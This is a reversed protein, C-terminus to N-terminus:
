GGRGHSPRCRPGLGPMAGVVLGVVIGALTLGLALPSLFVDLGASLFEFIM